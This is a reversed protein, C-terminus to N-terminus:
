ADESGQKKPWYGTQYPSLVNSRAMVLSLACFMAKVAQTVRKKPREKPLLCPVVELPAQGDYLAGLPPSQGVSPGEQGRVVDETQEDYVYM